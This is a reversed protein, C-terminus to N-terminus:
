QVRLATSQTCSCAATRCMVAWCCCCSRLVVVTSATGTQGGLQPIQQKSGTAETLNLDGLYPVLCPQYRLAHRGGAIAPNSVVCGANELDGQSASAFTYYQGIYRCAAAAAAACGALRLSTAGAAPTLRLRPVRVLLM